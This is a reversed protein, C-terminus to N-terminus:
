TSLCTEVCHGGESQPVTSGTQFGVALMMGPAGRFYFTIARYASADYPAAVSNAELSKNLGASIGGGWSTFGSGTTPAARTSAARAPVLPTPLFPSPLQVGTKDNDNVWVGVRGGSLCIVGDGDEFDDILTSEKCGIRGADVIAGGSGGSGAVG